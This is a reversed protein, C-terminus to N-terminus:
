TTCVGKLYNRGSNAQFDVIYRDDQCLFSCVDTLSELISNHLRIGVRHASQGVNTIM